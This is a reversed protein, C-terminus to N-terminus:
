DDDLYLRRRGGLEVARTDEPEEREQPLPELFDLLALWEERDCHDGYGLQEQRIIDRMMVGVDRADLLHAYKKVTRCTASVIFTRRGLAYRVASILCLALDEYEM